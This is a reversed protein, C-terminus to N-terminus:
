KAHVPFTALIKAVATEAREARKEYSMHPLLRASASGRWVLSNQARDVADVILTGRDYADDSAHLARVYSGRTWQAAYPIHADDFGDERLIRFTFLLDAEGSPVPAYGSRELEHEVASYIRKDLGRSGTDQDAPPAAAVPMWAFSRYRGFDASPNRDARVTFQSCASTVVAVLTIAARLRSGPTSSLM